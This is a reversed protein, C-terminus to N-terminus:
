RRGSSGDCRSDNMPPSLFFFSELAPAVEEEQHNSRRKKDKIKKKRKKIGQNGENRGYCAGVPRSSLNASSCVLSQARRCLACACHYCVCVCVSV